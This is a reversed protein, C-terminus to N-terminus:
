VSGEVGVEGGDDRSNMADDLYWAVELMGNPGGQELLASSTSGDIAMAM